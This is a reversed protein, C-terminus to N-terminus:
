PLQGLTIRDLNAYDQRTEILQFGGDRLLQQVPPKQDYGHELIIWADPNMSDPANQILERIADLGNVGSTLALLPEHQVDGENLCPHSEAIYPPNSVILDFKAGGLAECWSGQRLTVNKLNLNKLNQDAVKLAESSIDTAVIQCDPFTTSIEKAISLAIAGTGTGLDAVRKIKRQNIIMLAAKVLHETEPRPILTNKSVYLDLSWFARRGTLHSVPIGQQRKAILESYKKQQQLPIIEEPSKYFYSRDVNLVHCLLVQADIIPSGSNSLSKQGQALLDAISTM